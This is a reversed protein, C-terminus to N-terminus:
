AYTRILALVAQADPGEARLSTTEPDVRRAAVACLEDAPGTVVTPAPGDPAFDWTEGDPGTLRM